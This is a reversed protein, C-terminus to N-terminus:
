DASKISYVTGSFPSYNAQAAFANPVSNISWLTSDDDAGSGEDSWISAGVTSQVVLDKRICRYNQIDPSDYGLQGVMGISVYGDPPVASWISWDYDGGSGQDTYVVSWAKAPKLLPANPDDNIAKVIFSAGTPSGYNGQAYDGIIFYSTDDPKPRYLTLDLDAGSGVDSAIWTYTGTTSIILTPEGQASLRIAKPAQHNGM